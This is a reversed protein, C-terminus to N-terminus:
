NSRRLGLEALAEIITAARYPKKFLRSDPVPRLIESFGTAYFVALQPRLRRAQEALDWGSTTGPMRIDTFLLDINPAVVLAQLAAEAEGAEIVEFGADRLEEAIVDRLLEEDEVFLIVPKGDISM